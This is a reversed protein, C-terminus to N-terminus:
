GMSKLKNLYRNTKDLLKQSDKLWEDFEPRTVGREALEELYNKQRLIDSELGAKVIEVERVSPTIPIM